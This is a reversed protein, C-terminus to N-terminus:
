QAAESEETSKKLNFRIIITDLINLYLGLILVNLHINFMMYLFVSFILLIFVFGLYKRLFRLVRYKVIKEKLKEKKTVDFIFYSIVAFFIFLLLVLNFNVINKGAQMTLLVNLLILTGPMDGFTTPYFDRETFDGILIMRNEIMEIFIDDPLELIEGLNVIPFPADSLKYDLDHKRIIFDIIINNLSFRDNILNVPFGMKMERGNSLEYLILPISKLTDNKMLRYKVYEGGYLPYYAYGSYGKDPLEVKGPQPDYECTIVTKSSKELQPRLLTDGASHIGPDINLLIFKYGGEVANVRNLFLAVSNRDTISVNGIEFGEDDYRPILENQYATNVFLLSNRDPKQETKLIFKEFLSTFSIVLKDDGYPFDFYLIAFTIFVLFISHLSAYLLKLLPLKNLPNKTKM